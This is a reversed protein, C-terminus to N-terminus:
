PGPDVPRAGPGGFGLELDLRTLAGPRDGTVLGLRRTAGSAGLDAVPVRAEVRSWGHMRQLEWRRGSGGVLPRGDLRLRPDPPPGTDSVRLALHGDGREAELHVLPEVAPRPPADLGGSAFPEALDAAQAHTAAVVRVLWTRQPQGLRPAPHLPGGAVLHTRPAGPPPDLDLAVQWASAFAPATGTARGDDDLDVLDWAGPRGLADRWALRAGAVRGSPDDVALEYTVGGIGDRLTVALGPRAPARFSTTTRTPTTPRCAPTLTMLVLLLPALRALTM